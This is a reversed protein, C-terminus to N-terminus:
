AIQPNSMLLMGELPVIRARLSILKRTNAQKARHVLQRNRQVQIRVLPVHKVNLATQPIPERPVNLASLPGRIKGRFM